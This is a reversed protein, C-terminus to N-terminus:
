KSVCCLRLKEKKKLVHMMATLAGSRFYLKGQLCIPKYSATNTVKNEYCPILLQPLMHTLMHKIKTDYITFTSHYVLVLYHSHHHTETSLLWWRKDRKHVKGIKM